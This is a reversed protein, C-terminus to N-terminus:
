TYKGLHGQLYCLTDRYATQLLAPDVPDLLNCIQNDIPLMGICFLARANNKGQAQQM